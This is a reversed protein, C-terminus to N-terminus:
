RFGGIQAGFHQFHLTKHLTKFRLGKKIFFERYARARARVYPFDKINKASLNLVRCEPSCPTVQGVVM